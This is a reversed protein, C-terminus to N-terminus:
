LSTLIIKQTVVTDNTKIRVFYIGKPLASVDVGAVKKDTSLVRQGTQSYIDVKEVSLAPNIYLYDKVPNPYVYNGASRHSEITIASTYNDDKTFTLTDSIVSSCGEENEVTVWYNGSESIEL